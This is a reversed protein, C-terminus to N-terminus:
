PKRKESEHLQEESRHKQAMCFLEKGHKTTIQKLYLSQLGQYLRAVSFCSELGQMWDKTPMSEKTKMIIMMIVAM